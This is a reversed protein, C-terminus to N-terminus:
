IADGGLGACRGPGALAEAGGGVGLAMLEEELGTFAGCHVVRGQEYLVAVPEARARKARSAHVLEVRVPCGAQRLVASVM